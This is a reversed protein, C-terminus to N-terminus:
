DVRETESEIIRVHPVRLLYSDDKDTKSLWTPDLMNMLESTVPTDINTAPLIRMWEKTRSVLGLPTEMPTLALVIHLILGLIISDVVIM